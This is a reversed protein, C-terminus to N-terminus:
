SGYATRYGSLVVSVGDPGQVTVTIIKANNSAASILNSAPGLAASAVKVSVVNYGTLGPILVSSDIPYIGTTTFGNYDGIDDFFPRNAQIPAVAASTTTFNQLSIEELLSEAVAITQKRILPDASHKTTFNMVSLVGALAVSVIVIFVIAEVLSFGREANAAARNRADAKPVSRYGSVANNICM